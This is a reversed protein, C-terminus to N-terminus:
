KGSKARIAAELAADRGALVDRFTRPAAIDPQLSDTHPNKSDSFFKTTFRVELKSNPLTLTKVEGYGSPAGGTPEGVLVAGLLKMRIANLLASSFTGTGILVFVPRQGSTIADVLPNIVRSDGGGNFRLDLVIREVPKTILEASVQRAFEDMSLKPDEMCVNYQVFLTKSDDLYRQWYYRRGGSAYVAVPVARVRRYGEQRERTSTFFLRVERPEAPPDIVMLRVSGDSEKVGIRSLVPELTMLGASQDRVWARNEQAIYPALRALVEEPSQSGIKLVRTGIIERQAASASIIALGDAYWEFTVPLRNEFGMDEHIVISNHAVGASVHIRLLELVVDANTLEPLKKKLAKIAPNYTSPPYLKEFDKQGRSSPGLAPDVIMGRASLGRVM